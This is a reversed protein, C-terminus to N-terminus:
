RPPAGCKRRRRGIIRHRQLLMITWQSGKRTEKADEDIVNTCGCTCGHTCGHTGTDVQKQTNATEIPVDDNIGVHMEEHRPILV